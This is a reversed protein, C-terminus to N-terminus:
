WAHRRLLTDRAMPVLPGVMAERGSFDRYGLVTGEVWKSWAGGIWPEWGDEKPRTESVFHARIPTGVPAPYPSIPLSRLPARMPFPSLLVIDSRHLSSLVSAIPHAAPTSDVSSSLIFSGSSRAHSLEPPATLSSHRSM